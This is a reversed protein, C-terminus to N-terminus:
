KQYKSQYENIVDQLKKVRVSAREGDFKVQNQKNQIEKLFSLLWNVLSSSDLNYKQKMAITVCKYILRCYHLIHVCQAFTIPVNIVNSPQIQTSYSITSPSPHLQNSSNSTQYLTDRSVPTLMRSNLTNTISSPTKDLSNSRVTLRQDSFSNM